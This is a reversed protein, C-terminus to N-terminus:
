SSAFRETGERRVEKSIPATGGNSSRCSRRGSLPNSDDLTMTPM